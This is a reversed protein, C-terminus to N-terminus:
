EMTSIVLTINRNLKIVHQIGFEARRCSAVMAIGQNSTDGPLLGRLVLSKVSGVCIGFHAAAKALSIMKGDSRIIRSRLGSLGPTRANGARSRDYGTHAGVDAAILMLCGVTVCPRSPRQFRPTATVVGQSPGLPPRDQENRSHLLIPLLLGHNVNSADLLLTWASLRLQMSDYFGQCWPGPDLNGNVERRRMPEFRDPEDVGTRSRHRRCLRRAHSHQHRCSVLRHSSPAM